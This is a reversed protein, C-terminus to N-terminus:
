LDYQFKTCSKFDLYGIHLGDFQRVYERDLVQPIPNFSNLIKILESRRKAATKLLYLYVMRSEWGVYILDTYGKNINFINNIAGANVKLFKLLSEELSYELLALLADEQRTNCYGLSSRLVTIGCFLTVWDVPKSRGNEFYRSLSMCVGDEFCCKSQMAHKTLLREILHLTEDDGRIVVGGGKRTPTFNLDM